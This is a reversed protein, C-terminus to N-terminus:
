EPLWDCTGEVDYNVTGSGIVSLLINTNLKARVQIPLAHYTQNDFTSSVIGSTAWLPLNKYRVISNEDTWNAALYTQGTNVGSPTIWGGLRFTYAPQDQSPTNGTQFGLLVTSGNGGSTFTRPSFARYKIAEEVNTIDYDYVGTNSGSPSRLDQVDYAFNSYTGDMRLSHIILAPVTSPKIGTSGQYYGLVVASANAGSSSVRILDFIDDPSAGASSSSSASGMWLGVAYPQALVAYM